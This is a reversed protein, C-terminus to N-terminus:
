KVMSKRLGEVDLVARHKYILIPLNDGVNLHDFIDKTVQLISTIQKGDDATYTYEVEFVNNDGFLNSNDKNQEEMKTVVAMARKGRKNVKKDLIFFIINLLSFGLALVGLVLFVIFMELSHVKYAYIILYVMVASFILAFGGLYINGSRRKM